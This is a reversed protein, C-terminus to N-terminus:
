LYQVFGSLIKFCVKAHKVELEAVEILNKKFAVVRRQKFEVLELCVFITFYKENQRIM